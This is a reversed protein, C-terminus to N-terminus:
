DWHWPNGMHNTGFVMDDDGAVMLALVARDWRRRDRNSEHKLLGANFWNYGLNNRNTPNKRRHNIKMFISYWSVHYKQLNNNKSTKIRKKNCFRPALGRGQTRKNEWAKLTGGMNKIFCM